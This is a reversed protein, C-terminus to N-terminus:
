YNICSIIKLMFYIDNSYMTSFVILLKKLSGFSDVLYRVCVMQNQPWRNQYTNMIVPMSQPIVPAPATLTRSITNEAPTSEARIWASSPSVYTSKQNTLTSTYVIKAPWYEEFYTDPPYYKKIDDLRIVTCSDSAFLEYRIGLVKCCFKLYALNWNELKIAQNILSKAVREFFFLPVYKQGDKICYPVILESNIHTFGCVENHDLTINHLLKNYCVKIFTYFELVDELSAICDKGAFFMEKGYVCNSHNHNIDNLLKAESDTIFYCKVSTCSTYIDSHLYHLYNGLLHTEAM